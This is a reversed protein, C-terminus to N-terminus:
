QTLRKWWLVIGSTEGSEGPRLISVQTANEPHLEYFGHRDTDWAVPAEVVLRAGVSWNKYRSDVNGKSDRNKYEVRIFRKHGIGSHGDLVFAQGGVEVVQLGLDLSVFGDDGASPRNELVGIARATSVPGAKWGSIDSLKFVTTARALREDAVTSPKNVNVRLGRVFQEAPGMPRIPRSWEAHRQKLTDGVDFSAFDHGNVVLTVHQVKWQGPTPLSASPFPIKAALAEGEALANQAGDLARHAAAYQLEDKKKEAEVTARAATGTALTQLAAAKRISAAQLEASLSNTSQTLSTATNTLSQWVPNAVKVTKCLVESSGGTLIGLIVRGPTSITSCAQQAVQGPTQLLQKQTTALQSQINAIQGPLNALENEASAVTQQANAIVQVQQELLKQQINLLSQQQDLAYQAYAAQQKLAAIMAAPTPLGPLSSSAVSDPADTLGCLGKKELRVKSIDRVYLPVVAPVDISDDKGNFDVVITKTTGGDFDDGIKWAKPGIDLWVDDNTGSLPDNSTSIRVALSRIPDDPSNSSIPLTGAFPAGSM